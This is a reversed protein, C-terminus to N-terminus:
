GAMVEVKVLQSEAFTLAEKLQSEEGDLHVFLTGYAGKQTQSIQGQLINVELDFKRILSTILPQGTSEGVFTFKLVKGTPYEKILQEIVEDSDQDQSVEKVFRKTVQQQPNRFVELVDGLEAVKGNEMVAVRHCIKKIVHMEHTILVITLGLRKNIDVLLDLISDTTQPDLASTAEDCLLVRPNNALARAIGVRQKQGGSLQAPYADGRGELGVLTLLENARNVREKKPVGAIELPFQINDIVTRSWLLNFHQFIMGISQRAERLKKGKITSVAQGGVNITGETPVELGNLMRILTSKGAGSYGIVGFIEGEKVSLNVGDVASIPGAKSQYIKKVDSITIM